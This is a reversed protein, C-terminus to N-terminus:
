YFLHVIVSISFSISFNSGEYMTPIYFLAAVESCLRATGQIMLRVTLMCGLLKVELHTGLLFPFGHKRLFECMFTQLLTM